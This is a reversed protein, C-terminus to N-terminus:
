KVLIRQLYGPFQSSMRVVIIFVIIVSIIITIVVVINLSPIRLSCQVVVVPIVVVVMVILGVEVILARRRGFHRPTKTDGMSGQAPWASSLVHDGGGVESPRRV